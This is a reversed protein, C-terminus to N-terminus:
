TSLLQGLQGPLKLHVQEHACSLLCPQMPCAVIVRKQEPWRAGGSSLDGSISFEFFGRCRDGRVATLTRQGVEGRDVCETPSSPVRPYQGDSKGAKQSGLLHLLLGDWDPIGQPGSSGSTQVGGWEAVAGM